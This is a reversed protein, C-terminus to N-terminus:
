NANSKRMIDLDLILSIEWLTLGAGTVRQYTDIENWGIDTCGKKIEIYENWIYCLDDSLEPKLKLQEPKFGTSREVQEWQALRNVKSEKDYGLAHFM